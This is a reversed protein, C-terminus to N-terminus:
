SNADKSAPHDYIPMGKILLKLAHWYIRTVVQVNQWPHQILLRRRSWNTLPQASLSFWAAFVKQAARLNTIGLDLQADAWQIHWLYQMDLPNFPSVHFNKAHSFSTKQGQLPVLYYHRENWPTNSVEALQWCLQGRRYGFYLTLPSFFVGWNALPSLLFVETQDDAVDGDFATALQSNEALLVRVKALVARRLDPEGALYDARRYSFAGFKERQIPGANELADLASLRLWFYHVQYDFGHPKPMYRQHGVSGALVAHQQWVPALWSAPTVSSALEPAPLHETM